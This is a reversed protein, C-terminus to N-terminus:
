IRRLRAWSKMLLSLSAQEILKLNELNHDGAKNEAADVKSKPSQSDEKMKHNYRGVNAKYYTVMWSMHFANFQVVGILEGLTSGDFDELNKKNVLKAFKNLYLTLYEPRDEPLRHKPGVLLPSTAPGVGSATGSTEGAKSPHPPM